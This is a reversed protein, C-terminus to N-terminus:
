SHASSTLFVVHVPIWAASSAAAPDETGYRSFLVNGTTGVACLWLNQGSGHCVAYVTKDPRFGAPLTGMLTEAGAAQTGTPAAEGCIEVTRGIRRYKVPDGGAFNGFASSFPFSKWGSNYNLSNLSREVAAERAQSGDAASSIRASAKQLTSTLTEQAVGFRYTNNEPSALKMQIRNCQLRLDLGHPESDVLSYCGITFDSLGGRWSERLDLAKLEIQPPIALQGNLTTQGATKLEDADEIEPFKVAKVITGWTQVGSASTLYDRGSNVSEITLPAKIASGNEDVQGTDVDAGLPIIVTFVDAANTRTLIDLLNKGFRIGTRNEQSSGWTLVTKWVGSVLQYRIIYDGGQSEQLKKLLELATAYGDNELTLEEPASVSGATIKRDAGAQANYQTLVYSFFGGATGGYDETGFPRLVADNLWAMADEGYVRLNNYFDKEAKVARGRWILSDGDYVEVTSKMLSIRSYAANQPSILVQLTASKSLEYLLTSDLIGYKQGNYSPIYCPSGDVLIKYM